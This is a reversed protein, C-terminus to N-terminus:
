ILLAKLQSEVSRRNWCKDHKKTTHWPVFLWTSHLWFDSAGVHCSTQSSTNSLGLTRWAMNSISSFVYYPEPPSAITSPTVIPLLMTTGQHFYSHIITKTIAKHCVLVYPSLSRWQHRCLYMNHLLYHWRLTTNHTSEALSYSMSNKHYLAVQTHRNGCQGCMLTQSAELRAYQWLFNDLMQTAWHCKETSQIIV